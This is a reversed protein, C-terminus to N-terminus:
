EVVELLSTMSRVVGGGPVGKDLDGEGWGVAEVDVAHSARMLVWYWRCRLRDFILARQLFHPFHPWMLILQGLYSHLFQPHVSGPCKVELHGCELDPSM